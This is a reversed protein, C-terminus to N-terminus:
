AAHERQINAPLSFVAILGGAPRDQLKIDGGHAHAISRAVPLGLGAGERYREAANSGRYFREFAQAKEEDTMGPGSDEVLIRYGNAEAQLDIGVWEGGHHRANDLLVLLAQSIRGADGALPATTLESSFEADHLFTDKVENIVTVLDMTELNLRIEGAETRAVFLLDDVLRVTHNAAERSRELAERYYEVAKVDGRLAIDVEGKIITLPTRLEHSVDAIMRKRSEDIRKVDELMVSLRHTRAEVARQLREKESTLARNKVAIKDAMDNFSTAIEAMEDRGPVKIKTDMQGEGFRRVGGHLQQLPRTIRRDLMAVAVLVALVGLLALLITIRQQRIAAREVSAGTAEVEASKRELAARMMLQFKGDIEENLLRSLRGWDSSLEGSGTPSFQDLRDTLSSVSLEIETLADLKIRANEDGILEKESEILNRIGAIDVGVQSILRNKSARQNSDGIIIADGYQKFLQYIHSELNLYGEYITHSINIKRIQFRSQQLNWYHLVTSSLGLLLIFLLAIRLQTVLKM